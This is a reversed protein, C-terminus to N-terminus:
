ILNDIVEVEDYEEILCYLWKLSVLHNKELDALNKIEKGNILKSIEEDVVYRVIRDINKCIRVDVNKLMNKTKKAITHDSHFLLNVLVAVSEHRGMKALAVAAHMRLNLNSSNLYDLCIRRFRRLNLEGAAFLGYAIKDEESFIFSSVVYCAEERFKSFRGLTIAANIKEKDNSKLYPRVFVAVDVDEYNG